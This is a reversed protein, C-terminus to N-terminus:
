CLLGAFTANKVRPDCIPTIKDYEEVAEMEGYLFGEVCFGRQLLPAKASM